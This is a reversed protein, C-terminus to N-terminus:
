SEKLYKARWAAIAVEIEAESAGLSALKARARAEREAPTREENPTEDEEDSSRGLIERMQRETLLAIREPTLYFPEGMLKAYLPGVDPGPTDADSGSM